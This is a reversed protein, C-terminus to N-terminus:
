GRIRKKLNMFFIFLHEDIKQLFTNRVKAKKFFSFNVLDVKHEECFNKLEIYDNPKTNGWESSHCVAINYRGLFRGPIGCSRCPICKIGKQYYPYCSMGDSLYRFGAKHLAKLTNVDYTHAPAFFIDTKIGNQELIEKGKRLLDFQYDLSNGAFESHKRGCLLTKPKEQNYVHTYGHLAIEWGSDQLKKIQKWFDINASDVMQDPDENNPIVGILPKIGYEDMLAKAREFQKWDMTPCIDDFRVTFFRRM